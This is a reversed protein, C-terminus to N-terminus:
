RLEVWGSPATPDPTWGKSGAAESWQYGAYLVDSIRYATAHTVLWTAVAWGATQHRVAVDAVTVSSAAALQRVALRGFTRVLQQRMPTIEPAAHSGRTSGSAYWCWVAHPSQGTFAGSLWAAEQAYNLYATGDASHQVDQAAQDIPIHLYDHVKVLAAFFKGTAYVPDTLQHATGWGQSPRQQFVGVSDLDGSRLNQMKSEQMATAYAITVAGAPLRRAHAVGAITAAIAAQEPNLAVPKSDGAAECGSLGARVHRFVLYGGIALVLAV